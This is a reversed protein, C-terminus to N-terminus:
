PIVVTIYLPTIEIVNPSGCLRKLDVTSKGDEM